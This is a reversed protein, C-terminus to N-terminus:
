WMFYAKHQQYIFSAWSQIQRRGKEATQCFTYVIEKFTVIDSTLSFKLGFPLVLISSSHITASHIVRCSLDNDNNNLAVGTTIIYKFKLKHLCWYDTQFSKPINAIPM